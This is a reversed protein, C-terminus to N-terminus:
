MGRTDTVEIAEGALVRKLPETWGLRRLVAHELMNTGAYISQPQGGFAATHPNVGIISGHADFTMMCIRSQAFLVKLTEVARKRVNDDLWSLDDTAEVVGM